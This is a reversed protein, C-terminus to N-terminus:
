ARELKKHSQLLRILFRVVKWGYYIILYLYFTFYLLFLFIFYGSNYQKYHPTPKSVANPGDNPPIVFPICKLM